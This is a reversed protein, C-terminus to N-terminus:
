HATTGMKSLEKKFWWKGLYKKIFVGGANRIEEITSDAPITV